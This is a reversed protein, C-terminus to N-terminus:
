GSPVHYLDVELVTRDGRHYAEYYELARGSALYLVSRLYLMSAGVEVELQAAVRASVPVAELM